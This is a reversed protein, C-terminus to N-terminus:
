SQDPNPSPRSPAEWRLSLGTVHGGPRPTQSGQTQGSSPGGARPPPPWIRDLKGKSQQRADAASHTSATSDEEELGKSSEGYLTCRQRRLEEDRERSEQIDKQVEPQRALAPRLKFFPNEGLFPEPKETKNRSGQKSALADVSVSDMSRHHRQHQDQRRYRSLGTVPSRSRCREWRRGGNTDVPRPIRLSQTRCVPQSRLSLMEMSRTRELVSPYVPDTFPTKSLRVAGKVSGQQLGEFLRKTDKLQRTVEKRYEGPITGQNVLVLERQREQSIEKQMKQESFQRALCHATGTDEGQLQKLLIPTKFPIELVDPNIEVVPTETTTPVEQAHIPSFDASVGSDSQDDSPIDERRPVRRHPRSGLTPYVPMAALAEKNAGEEREIKVKGKTQGYEDEEEVLTSRHDARLEVEYAGGEGEARLSEGGNGPAGREVEREDEESATQNVSVGAPQTAPQQTDQRNQVWQLRQLLLEGQQIVYSIAESGGRETQRGEPEPSPLLLEMQQKISPEVTLHTPFSEEEERGDELDSPPSISAKCGEDSDRMTSITVGMRGSPSGSGEEPDESRSGSMDPTCPQESADGSTQALTGIGGAVILSEITQAANSDKEECPTETEMDEPEEKDEPDRNEERESRTVEDVVESHEAVTQREAPHRGLGAPNGKAQTVEGTGGSPCRACPDHVPTQTPPMAGGPTPPPATCQPAPPLFVDDGAEVDM